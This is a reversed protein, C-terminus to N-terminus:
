FLASFLHPVTRLDGLPPSPGSCPGLQLPQLAQLLCLGLSFLAGWSGASAAGNCLPYACCQAQINVYQEGWVHSPQMSCLAACGKTILNIVKSGVKTVVHYSFCLTDSSLCMDAKCDETSNANLCQYCQLREVPEACALSSWLGLVLIFTDM